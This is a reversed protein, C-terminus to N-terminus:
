SSRGSANHISGCVSAGFAVEARHMIVATSVGPTIVVVHRPAFNDPFGQFIVRRTRQISAIYQRCEGGLTVPRRTRFGARCGGLRAPKGIADTGGPIRALCGPSRIARGGHSRGIHTAPEDVRSVYWRAYAVADGRCRDALWEM